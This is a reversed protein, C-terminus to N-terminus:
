KLEKTQIWDCLERSIKGVYEPSQIIKQHEPSSIYGCEILCADVGRRYYPVTCFRVRSMWANKPSEPYAIYTKSRPFTGSPPAGAWVSGEKVYNETKVYEENDIVNHHILVAYKAGYQVCHRARDSHTPDSTATRSVAVEYGRSELIAELAKAVQFNLSEENFHIGASNIVFAGGSGPSHGPDLWIKIPNNM